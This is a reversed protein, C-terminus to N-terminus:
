QTVHGRKLCYSRSSGSIGNPHAYHAIFLRVLYQRMIQQMRNLLIYVALIQVNRASRLVPERPACGRLRSVSEPFPVPINQGFTQGPTGDAVQRFPIAQRFLGYIFNEVGTFVASLFADRIREPRKKRESVVLLTCEPGARQLTRRMKVALPTSISLIMASHRLSAGFRCPQPTVDFLTNAAAAAPM